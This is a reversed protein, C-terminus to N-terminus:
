KPNELLHTVNAPRFNPGKVVRGAENRIPEGDPGLKSLNATHIELVAADYVETLGFTVVTGDVVYRLDALEHLIPGLDGDRMAEVVEALEEAMLQVRLLLVNQQHLVAGAHAQAAVIRLQQVLDDLERRVRPEVDIKTPKTPSLLGFLEHFKKVLRQTM